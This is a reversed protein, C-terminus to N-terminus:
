RACRRVALRAILRDAGEPLRPMVESVFWHFGKREQHRGVSCLLLAGDPRVDVQHHLDVAAEGGRGLPMPTLDAAAGFGVM